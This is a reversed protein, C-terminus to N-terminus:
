TGRPVSKAARQRATAGYRSSLVLRRQQKTGRERPGSGRPSPNPGGNSAQEGSYARLLRTRSRADIGKM